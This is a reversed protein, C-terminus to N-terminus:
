VGPPRRHFRAPPSRAARWMLATEPARHDFRDARPLRPRRHLLDADAGRPVRDQGCRRLVPGAAEGAERAKAVAALLEEESESRVCVKTFAGELWLREAETISFGPRADRADDLRRCPLRVGGGVRGAEPM